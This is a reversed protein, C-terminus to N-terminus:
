HRVMSTVAEIPRRRVLSSAILIIVDTFLVKTALWFIDDRGFLAAIDILHAMTFSPYHTFLPYDCGGFKHYQALYMPDVCELRAKIGVMVQVTSPGVAKAYMMMDAMRALNLIRLSSGHRIYELKQHLANCFDLATEPDEEPLSIEKTQCERWPPSLMKAFVPSAQSIVTGSVRIDLTDDGTGM